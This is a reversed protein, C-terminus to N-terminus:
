LEDARIGLAQLIAFGLMEFRYSVEGKPPNMGFVTVSDKGTMEKVCAELKSGCADEDPVLMIRKVDKSEGALQVSEIFLDECLAMDSPQFAYLSFEGLRSRFAVEHLEKGLSSPTCFRMREGRSKDYIFIVQIKNEGIQVGGDLALCELLVALDAKGLSRKVLPAFHNIMDEGVRDLYSADILMVDPEFPIKQEMMNDLTCILFSYPHLHLMIITGIFFWLEIKM